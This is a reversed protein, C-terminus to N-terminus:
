GKIRIPQLQRNISEFAVDLGNIGAKYYQGHGTTCNQLANTFAGNPVDYGITFLSLNPIDKLAKCQQNFLWLSQGQPLKKRETKGDQNRDVVAVQGDTLLIVVKETNTNVFVPSGEDFNKAARRWDNDLFREAWLLGYPSDTGWSTQLGSIHNNLRTVNRSFLFAESGDRPCLPANRKGAYGQQYAQLDGPDVDTRGTNRFCGYFQSARSFGSNADLWSGSDRGINISGGFPILSVTLHNQGNKFPEIDTIFQQVATKMRGIKNDVLMSESIDLVLIVEIQPPSSVASKAEVTWRSVPKGIMGMFSNKTKGSIATTLEFSGDDLRKLRTKVKDRGVSFSDDFNLRAAVNGTSKASKRRFSDYYQKSAALVAADASAQAKSIDSTLKSHDVAMGIILLLPVLCVATMVAINGDANRIYPKINDRFWAMKGLLLLLTNWGV